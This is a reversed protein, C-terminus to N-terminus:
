CRPLLTNTGENEEGTATRERGQRWEELRREAQRQIELYNELSFAMPGGDAGTLERKQPADLGLLKARRGMMALARDVAPGDGASAAPWVAAFLADIRELEMRTVETAEEARRKNLRALEQTVIRNARRGSAAV